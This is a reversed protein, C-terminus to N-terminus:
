RYADIEFRPAWPGLRSAVAAVRRVGSALHAGFVPASGSKRVQFDTKSLVRLVEGRSPLVVLSYDHGSLAEVYRRQWARPLWGVGPLRVHPEPGISWRNNSALYLRDNTLGAAAEVVTEADKVHELLDNAVVTAFVNERFPPTEVNACLVLAEEPLRRKAVLLWRLAADLGVAVTGDETAAEILGAQGCGLDILPGEVPKLHRLLARGNEPETLQRRLYNAKLEAATEPTQAWYSELAAEYSEDRAAELVRLGKARDEEMTLFRDPATRLDALGGVMPYARDCATCGLEEDSARLARERCAPCVLEVGRARFREVLRTASEM